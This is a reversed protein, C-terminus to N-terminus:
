SLLNTPPNEENWEHLWKEAEDDIWPFIPDFDPKEFIRDLEQMQTESPPGATSPAVPNVFQQDHVEVSVEYDGSKLKEIEVLFWRRVTVFTEGRKRRHYTTGVLDYNQLNDVPVVHFESGAIESSDIPNNLIIM